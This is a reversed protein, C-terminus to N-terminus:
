QRYRATVAEASAILDPDNILEAQVDADAALPDDDEDPMVEFEVPEPAPGYKAIFRDAMGDIKFANTLGDLDETTANKLSGYGRSEAWAHLADHTIGHKKAEAHLARMARTTDEPAKVALEPAHPAIQRPQAAIEGTDSDVTVTASVVEGDDNVTVNDGLEGPVYMGAISEPFAMRAVASICRARLMAAPYQKWTNSTALGAKAADDMSFTYTSVDAWGDLRYEITCATNTSEKVRIARKGHDRYILALMMEASVTPKGKVIAINSLAYMPPVGLERGKLMIAVAQEPRKISEPLFGTPVLSAAMDMMLSWEGTTPMAATYTTTANPNQTM